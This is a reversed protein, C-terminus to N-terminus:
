PAYLAEKIDFIYIKDIINPGTDCRVALSSTSIYEQALRFAYVENEGGSITTGFGTAGSANQVEIGIAVVDCDKAESVDLTYYTPFPLVANDYQMLHGSLVVGFDAIESGTLYTRYDESITAVAMGFLLILSM